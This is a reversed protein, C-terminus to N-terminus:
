KKDNDPISVIFDPRHIHIGRANLVTKLESLTLDTNQNKKQNGKMERKKINACDSIVEWIFKQCAINVTRHVRPDTTNMGAEALLHMVVSDPIPAPYDQMEKLFFTVM